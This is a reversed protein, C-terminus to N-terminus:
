VSKRGILKVVTIKVKDVYNNSQYRSTVQMNM